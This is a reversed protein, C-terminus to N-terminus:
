GLKVQIGMNELAQTKQSTRPDFLSPDSPSPDLRTLRVTVQMRSAHTDSPSSTPILTSAFKAASILSLGMQVVLNDLEDENRSPRGPRQGSGLDGEGDDDDSNM